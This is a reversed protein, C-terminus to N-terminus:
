VVTGLYAWRVPQATADTPILEFVVRYQRGRIAFALNTNIDITHRFNYGTSDETWRADTQLADFISDAVTVEGDEHGSVAADDDPADPAVLFVTYTIESTVAQTLTTNEHDEIRALFTATHDKLVYFPTQVVNAM